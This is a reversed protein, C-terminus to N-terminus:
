LISIKFIIYDNGLFMEKMFNAEPVDATPIIYDVREDVYFHFPQFKDFIFDGMYENMYTNLVRRDFFDIARGGYMVEGILYKLSSWPIKSDGNDHAKSLYTSLIQMCVRFDSENFDYSVNWGIKDYKRREQVVAHFFSLVFVVSPFAPHPCENLANQTIKHYTNRLNLKLGNPPETVIKLSRQLIGIPFTSIPETTLWLRFDPHPKTIKELQKELERLWKVLLHCNQLMLWLGRTVAQELYNLAIQEQGQGMALLKVKSVGFGSREALKLLDTTPDSGPSLIFVIPSTTSSQEYISEFSIVPPTVYQEGMTSKVYDTVALYIRDTRFCRLLMLRQFANLNTAYQQPYTSREPADSDFWAKWVSENREIEDLLSGFTAPFDNSLRVCDEWSQDPLWNFPKKRRSKELAINGKIFFDLEEQSVNKMDQELKITIQFSFLLKHKEFIGSCGYNYVNTTLTHMINKLRKELSADPTARRLSYEFVELYTSLSYQYMSNVTALDALVFFLIAGRKAVPRYGDRLREIDKSTKAGLKLKESVETAKTKTEELTDILETNDLMNGTSTALERLLSDELDKLLKKNESTEQILRERQEELEKREYKVIVSLLQDELGKLTVTYNIVMSKGFHAPTLKPNPLKTNLYMRFNPDYDVEKDGLMIFQRGQVGKINKELVNDIVPDIYEDCDQFLVPFGYKIAMELHKLFDSDNFTIIKLNFKEEKKKIWKLAQQQPDICYAFRSAQTTLIGNQVSLEDPPLGESTWKSIEVDTTLLDELKFPQSLPIEKEVLDKQWTEFVLEKRFEWTFAGVYALFASCILTDGLLRIKKKKLEELDQSWRKNESSLGNILKDAAILRREMIATEQELKLKEAMQKELKDALDKLQAEIKNISNNIKDLERKSDHFEKELRAVKDRKPKVERFVANYGIIAYVFKLLGSGATSVAKMKKFSEQEREAQNTAEVELKAELTSVLDKVNSIQKNTINDVDMNKLMNLFNPDAMMAQASRWNVEKIGKLIVICNCVLEVQPPPNKFARIETIDNRNLDELALKAAELAPMAEALAVEAEGKEKDIVVTQEGIEKSKVVAMEKKENAEITGAEIEKLLAEVEETRKTVMVKQVALDENLKKLAIEADKIKDIGVLLRDQQAKNEQNKKDLNTLYTSIYDLYNKPTTYNSRRLKQAFQVSYHEVSQHVMVMHTVLAERYDKPIFENDSSLFSTAVAYLAQQPWPMFWDIVANNVLGPFNRCRTRLQDGVPSMALVIHLNNACKTVFYQWISEKAQSAGNRVAEDRIQGLIGEKEDDAYLAPVMGSTLMNNILELFGEEAVHQDGFMFVVKKNEIGLKNYLIKLDDRFSTESYGRSLKIEFVECGAAFAALRTLSQKGSGGVGVLLANGQDLRIARHIRTVHDLADDFLVLNMPIFQENYEQLIQEFLAKAAEYDQIDEYIRPEGMELANRYDGFLIPDRFIYEMSPKLNSTDGVLRKMIENVIVKDENTILRDYIVRMIENRWVRTFQASNQFREPTTLVLGNYIRSLDRLNFIYHFKSPTPPLDKIINKYLELTMKTIKPVIDRIENNFPKTHGDLISNFIHYLSDESPFTIHYVNFLSVFRPDVENRGGGPKGMSAQFLIDKFLKWNLDKGRDYMGGKELLLKLLAIPQQTGYDDVRPMNMDDVFVILKKGPPPGYSDKTRKEVSAELTRQVDMSTTRSSFNVNLVINIDSNLKRLFNLTTATKSTGSEGVLLTPRKLSYMLNLLWDTRVTDVTPVLIENYQKAPDHIYQPVLSKWPKWVKEDIDLFYEFLTAYKTPIEGAKALQGDKEEIAPMASWYKIQKDFKIQGDELLAAGLSWYLAQLFVCELVSEDLPEKANEYPLLLSELMYGLQAIMNLSSQFIITKMRDGQKGDVIGDIIMDISQPVYKDFFRKLAEREEKKERGNSWRQWYPKFGLNKPDVYVMGCRSVTAPSAYQLDGVEFLMACHNQLRIREGNALTLLKNDDMVSNMNEIWLADVDGDYLIYRREKKDTPKNIDRFINSLLGDKWDRTNPDLIGYLEVVSCAKPNLTYLKTNLGLKTQAQALTNIVVSKGGGTPGVIMTSHRTMMTEYMQVVKDVQVPLIVLKNSQLVEEVADNFQPYRVRPCDLGPFLDSILGLFLPVDEFVFKPLNMDRLARMLVVDESLDAASRKLEGAMVLVSKLARLGFDYHNQKSLQERALKYLVTMKKALMKAMSFGESFLMIECIQQLDPVIVVVPRFLAKVSEPLETRGAYGPNMTIFVGVRYDLSIEVGEFMFRKMKTILAQRITQIQSSVVSLVSSDIRNFEDFCGWAGSQCLGNLNKGIAKYDMGEGCNTVVCLCGMAKALDKVSETKGTGAPGAPACGLFMSLAQTITLYIRDTLPTIVLRGNLGMYEYGYGFEGTCQRLMLEDPERVWYFRLQSEWEFERADLISDRVFGDIIDRAHVDIILVTNLKKRENKALPTRIEVVVEELQQHLQKAYNKMAGKSGNAVKKFVDEVEWTWWIQNTALVVMGIYDYMWQVRTKKYRYYYISEKTILRNTRRMEHLVKTMWDEVRGEALVPQKFEMVEKEGSIMAQATTINDNGKVLRLSAVNDYMKIMHEQVCSPDSSGLISLLEDDSIFFFRPFANRKSDLYDNLSKQCKELGNSITQLDNLRNTAHCAKKINPERQTEVMIKKFLKDIVDFKKAEEPLQARIDGGVFIGELYMWKRQVVIWIDIVESILSLSKEWSQVTNLFPGIFRSASMSQLSMTNDDLAQLIEDVTGLVFGRDQTGKTYKIVEFRLKEWTEIVEKVGKEIQLEKSASTVIGQIVENFRDLKMAFLNALTFTEPNMDFEIGTEKMLQKWHRERLAEHKLDSMLPLSDKFSKMKNELTKAVAMARVDRPLKKLSKIYNDVGDILININLDKWLTESWEKISKSQNEYLKYIEELGKMEKQVHLLAPYSSIPLNFLKEANTLDQKERELKNLEERYTKLLKIGTDLDEGVSGPGHQAFKEAFAKIAKGFENIQIQTIETFREKIVSLGVDRHKSNLFLQSWYSEITNLIEEEEQSIKFKYM